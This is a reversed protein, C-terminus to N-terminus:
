PDGFHFSLGLSILISGGILAVIIGLSVAIPVDILNTLIM